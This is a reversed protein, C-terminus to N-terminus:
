VMTLALGAASDALELGCPAVSENEAVRAPVLDSCVACVAWFWPGESSANNVGAVAAVLVVGFAAVAAVVAGLVPSLAEAAALVVAAAV